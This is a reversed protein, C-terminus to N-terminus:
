VGRCLDCGHLPNYVNKKVVDSNRPDASFQDRIYTDITNLIYAPQSVIKRYVKGQVIGDVIALHQEGLHQGLVHTSGIHAVTEEAADSVTSVSATHIRVGSKEIDSMAHSSMVSSVLSSSRSDSSSPSSTPTTVVGGSSSSAVLSSSDSISVNMESAYVKNSEDDNVKAVVHINTPQGNIIDFDINVEPLPSRWYQFTNFNNDLHIHVPMATPDLLNDGAGNDSLVEGQNNESPMNNDDSMSKGDGSGVSTTTEESPVVSGEVGSGLLSQAQSGEGLVKLQDEVKAYSTNNQSFSSSDIAVDSSSNSDCACIEAGDGLNLDELGLSTDPSEISDEAKKNDGIDSTALWADARLEEASKNQDNFALRENEENKVDDSDICM